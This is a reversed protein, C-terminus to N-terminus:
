VDEGNLRAAIRNRVRMANHMRRLKYAQAKPDRLKPNYGEVPEVAIPRIYPM